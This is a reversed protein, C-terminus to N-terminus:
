VKKISAISSTSSVSPASSTSSARSVRSSVSPASAVSSASSRSSIVSCTRSRSSKCLNLHRFLANRSSFNENCHRCTSPQPPYSSKPTPRRKPNHARKQRREKPRNQPRNQEQQQVRKQREQREQRKQLREEPLEKYQLRLPIAEQDFSAFPPPLRLDRNPTIWYSTIPGKRLDQQCEKVDNNSWVHQKDENATDYLAQAISADDGPVYVGGCRLYARLERQTSLALQKFDRNTYLAFSGQFWEWLIKDTPPLPQAKYFRLTEEVHKQVREQSQPYHKSMYEQAQRRTVSAM